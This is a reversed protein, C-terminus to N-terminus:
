TKYLYNLWGVNCFIRDEEKEVLRALIQKIQCNSFVFFCHPNASVIAQNVYANKFFYGVFYLFSDQSYLEHMEAFYTYSQECILQLLIFWLIDEQLLLFGVIERRLCRLLFM